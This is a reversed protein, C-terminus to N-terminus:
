QENEKQRAELGAGISLGVALGGGIAITMFAMNDLLIGYVIGFLGGLVMGVSMGLGLYGIEQREKKGSDSSM